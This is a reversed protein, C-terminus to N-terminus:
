HHIAYDDLVRRAQLLHRETHNTLLPFCHELPYTIVASLPSTIVTQQHDLKDSRRMLEALEQMNEEFRDIVALDLDSHAPEFTRPAKYRRRPEPQISRVLLRGWFGPLWPLREWFTPAWSDDILAELQQFYQRNSHIVHDLCQGVSWRDVTAKWNLQEPTLGGFDRRAGDSARALRDILSLMYDNKM